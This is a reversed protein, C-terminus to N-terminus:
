FLLQITRKNKTTIKKKKTFLTEGWERMMMMAVLWRLDVDSSCM